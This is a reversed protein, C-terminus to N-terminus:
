GLYISTSRMINATKEEAVKHIHTNVFLGNKQFMDELKYDNKTTKYAFKNHTQM